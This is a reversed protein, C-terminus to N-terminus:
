QPRRWPVNIFGIQGFIEAFRELDTGFYLFAQGQPPNGATGDPRLFAIRGRPYCIGQAQGHAAHFWAADTANNALLIAATTRGLDVEQILKSVFRSIAPQRYPPNLWVRGHWPHMLGNNATGYWQAARVHEQAQASSAPDCDIGGLVQRVLDLCWGPTYWDVAGTFGARFHAQRKAPPQGFLDIAATM